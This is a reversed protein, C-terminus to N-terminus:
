EHEDCGGRDWAEVRRVMGRHMVHGDHAGLGRAYWAPRRRAAVALGCGPRGSTAAQTHVDYACFYSAQAGWPADPVLRDEQRVIAAEIAASEPQNIAAPVARYTSADRLATALADAQRRGDLLVKMPPANSDEPNPASVLAPSKNSKESSSRLKESLDPYARACTPDRNCAADFRAFAGSLDGIPDSLLTQGPPFPNDLTISRVAGPARRVM